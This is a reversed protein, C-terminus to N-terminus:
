ATSPSGGTAALPDLGANRLAATLWILPLGILATPDSSEIAEFLAVGLGEAKFGGACDYAPELTLYRDLAARPLRAFKVRTLDIHEQANGGNEVVCVATHFLVERGQFAQLQELAKAHSGPKGLPQDDLAAVQDSGIVVGNAPIALAKARALRAALEAPTEDRRPTEDIDPKATDFALGLRGLLERRYPSTSALILRKGAGTNSSL